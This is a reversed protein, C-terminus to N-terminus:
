SEAKGQHPEPMSREIIGVLEALSNIVYDAEGAWDPVGGGNALVVSWAGANHACIMDWKFDGVVLVEGPDANWSRAMKWVPEPSPKSPADDRTFAADFRLSFRECVADVSARSNRTLLGTPIGHELLYDLIERAGDNLEAHAVGDREFEELIREARAREAPPVSNLYEILDVDGLGLRRRLAQFDLYPKTLTGDMDFIVGRVVMIRRM